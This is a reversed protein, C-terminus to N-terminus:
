PIIRQGFSNNVHVYFTDLIFQALEPDDVPYTVNCFKEYMAEAEEDLSIYKNSQLEQFKEIACNLGFSFSLENYLYNGDGSDTLYYPTGNYIVEIASYGVSKFAKEWNEILNNAM